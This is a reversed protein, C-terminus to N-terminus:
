NVHDILPNNDEGPLIMRGHRDHETTPCFMYKFHDKKVRVLALSGVELLSGFSRM